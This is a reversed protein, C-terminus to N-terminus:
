PNHLFHSSQTHDQKLLKAQESSIDLLKFLGKETVTPSLPRVREACVDMFRQGFLIWAAADDYDLTGEKQRWEVTGTRPMCAVNLRRRGILQVCNKPPRVYPAVGPKSLPWGRVEHPRNGAVARQIFSVSDQEWPSGRRLRRDAVFKMVVPEARQWSTILRLLATWDDAYEPADHHVHLGDATSVYFDNECLWSFVEGLRDLGSQGKLIPSRIEIGSGDAGVNSWTFKERLFRKASSCSYERHGCEIEVGFRRKSVQTM